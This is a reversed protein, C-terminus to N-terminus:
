PGPNGWSRAKGLFGGASVAESVTGGSSLWAEWPRAGRGAGGFPPGSRGELADSLSWGAKTALPPLCPPSSSDKGEVPTRPWPGAGGWAGGVPAPSCALVAGVCVQKQSAGPMPAPNVVPGLLPHHGWFPRLNNSNDM